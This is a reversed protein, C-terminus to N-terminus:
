LHIKKWKGSRLYIASLLGMMIWYLIESGWVLEVSTPIVVAFIYVYVMYIVINILEIVLAARTNGTGSVASLLIVSISFLFMASLIIYYSGKSDQILIEDNTVLSLIWGDPYISIIFIVLTTLVSLHIIKRILGGVENIRGQGILNSVMSSTASAYGWIPVMFIMYTSRIVNSIALEHEGMREIFVFFLFWASMSLTNQVVIPTALHIIALIRKKTVEVFRFLRYHSFDKHVSSYVVFYLTAVAEAITSALASGGIGMEPFGFKGFILAYALIANLVTMLVASYTLIRTQGIGVYFSRFAMGSITFLLGFSRYYMFENAANSINESRLLLDFLAPSLWFSILFTILSLSTLILFSHDFLKGIEETNGEGARRAILIQAGVSFAVGIMVLVFYYVGAVASAGLEVEGVRALFATDTLNLVTTALSGLIIPYSINWIERYSTSVKMSREFTTFIAAQLNNFFVYSKTTKLGSFVRRKKCSQWGWMTKIIVVLFLFM